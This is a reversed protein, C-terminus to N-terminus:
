KYLRKSNLQAMIEAFLVPECDLIAYSLNEGDQSVTIQITAGCANLVNIYKALSTTIEEKYLQIKEVDIDDNLCIVQFILKENVVLDGEESVSMPQQRGQITTFFLKGSKIQKIIEIKMTPNVGTILDQYVGYDILVPVAEM